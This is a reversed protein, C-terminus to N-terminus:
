QVIRTTKIEEAEDILCIPPPPDAALKAFMRNCFDESFHGRLLAAMTILNSVIADTMEDSDMEDTESVFRHLAAQLRKGDSM